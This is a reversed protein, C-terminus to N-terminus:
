REPPFDRSDSLIKRKGRPTVDHLPPAVYALLNGPGKSKRRSAIASAGFATLTRSARPRCLRRLDSTKRKDARRVGFRAANPRVDSLLVFQWRRARTPSIEGFQQGWNACLRLFRRRIPASDTNRHHHGLDTTEVRGTSSRALIRPPGRESKADGKRSSTRKGAM